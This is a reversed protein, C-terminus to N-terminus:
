EPHEASLLTVVLDDLQDMTERMGHEMGSSMIMDRVEPSPCLSRSEMLTMGGAIDTFTVTIIAAGEEGGMPGDATPEFQETHVLRSPRVVESYKGSFAFPVQAGNKRLVYRYRGGPRVDADCSVVEVDRTQPAWWRKVLAPNTWAEFVLRSPARFVRKIVFERDGELELTTTAKPQAAAAAASSIM